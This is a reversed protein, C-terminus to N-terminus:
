KNKEAIMVAAVITEVAAELDVRVGAGIRLAIFALASVAEPDEALWYLEAATLANKVHHYVKEIRAASAPTATEFTAFRKQLAAIAKDHAKRDRNLKRIARKLEATRM